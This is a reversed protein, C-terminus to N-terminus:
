FEVFRMEGYKIKAGGNTKEMVKEEFQKLNDPTVFIKAMVTDGYEVSSLVYQKQSIISELTSFQAYDCSLECETAQKKTKIEAIKLCEVVAKTYASLLGATGLKIGGFYRTVVVATKVLGSKKLVELMPQGATGGPEGDDSFKAVNGLEDGIYAYCNHKADPYSKKVEDVFAQASESDVEGCISAIFRSRKVEIETQYRGKIFRYENM